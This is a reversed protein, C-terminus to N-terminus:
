IIYSCQSQRKNRAHTTLLDASFLISHYSTRILRTVSGPGSCRGSNIIVIRATAMGPTGAIYM